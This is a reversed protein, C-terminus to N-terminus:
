PIREGISRHFVLPEKVQDAGGIRRAVADVTGRPDKEIQTFCAFRTALMTHSPDHPGVVQFGSVPISRGRYVLLGGDSRVGLVSCRPNVTGRGLVAQTVSM